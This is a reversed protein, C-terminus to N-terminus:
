SIGVVADLEAYDPLTTDIATGQRIVIRDSQPRALLESLNRAKFVVLDAPRGEGILGVDLGMIQAPTRTVAQPWDGIPRDLQGIRVSQNFVEVMDHDGYAFFADRCNDSALAVAVEFQRLEPLLTVGRYRPMRGQQRDQLYLNCM